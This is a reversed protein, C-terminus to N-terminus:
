KRCCIFFAEVQLYLGLIWFDYNGQSNETKDGSINSNSGGISLFQDDPTQITYVDHDQESGGITNQWEIVGNSDTKIIWYDISGNTNETKNGSISSYSGGSLIYGGENTQKVSVCWDSESGGYTKDWQVQGLGDIKVIWYDNQGYSSETKDGSIGSQSNGGLIFGGDTTEDISTLADSSAGGITNQWIINGSNDLKLVWYDFSGIGNETKDGGISSVSSGGVIYTGDDLALVESAEDLSFGGITNEWQITGSSNLKVIWYDYNGIPNESKDSSASSISRGSIIYGNDPTQKIAELQDQATGGITNEWEVNGIANLKVVWFDEVGILNESKDGSISSQSIGGVICGGDNTPYISRVRDSMTGGVSNQWAISPEQSYSILFSFLLIIITFNKLM